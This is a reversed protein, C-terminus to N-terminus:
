DIVSIALAPCIAEAEEAAAREAEPPEPDLLIAIGDDRQAFLNPAAMVCQGAATCKDQDLEIRM